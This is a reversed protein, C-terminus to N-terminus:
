IAKDSNFFLTTVLHITMAPMLIAIILALVTQGIAAFTFLSHIGMYYIIGFILVHFWHRHRGRDRNLSNSKLIIYMGIAFIGGGVIYLYMYPLWVRQFDVM